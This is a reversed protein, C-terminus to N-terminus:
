IEDLSLLLRIIDAASQEIRGQGRSEVRAVSAGMGRLLGHIKGQGQGSLTFASESVYAFVTEQQKAAPRARQEPSKPQLIRRFARVTKERTRDRYTWGGGNPPTEPQVAEVTGTGTDALVINSLGTGFIDELITGSGADTFGFSSAGTGVFIELANGADTFGFAPAGSGTFIELASGADTFGFSPSGSGQFIELASGADTFGFSSAGSGTIAPIGGQLALLLSM